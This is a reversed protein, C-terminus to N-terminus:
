EAVTRVTWIQGNINVSNLSNLKINNNSDDKIVSYKAHLKNLNQKNNTIGNKTTGNKVIGSQAKGNKAVQDIPKKEKEDESDSSSSSSSSSSSDDSSSSSAQGSPEKLNVRKTREYLEPRKEKLVKLLSQTMKPRGRAAKHYNVEWHERHAFNQTVAVTETLNLVTHWWGSPVHLFVPQFSKKFLITANSFVWIESNKGSFTGFQGLKPM